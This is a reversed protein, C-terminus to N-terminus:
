KEGEMIEVNTHLRKSVDGITMSPDEEPWKFVEPDVKVRTSRPM